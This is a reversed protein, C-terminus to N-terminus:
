APRVWTHDSSDPLSSGAVEEIIEQLLMTDWDDFTAGTTYESPAPPAVGDETRSGCAALIEAFCQPDHSCRNLLRSLLHRRAHRMESLDGGMLRLCEVTMGQQYPLPNLVRTPGMLCSCVYLSSWIFVVFNSIFIIIIYIYIYITTPAQRRSKLQRYKVAAPMRRLVHGSCAMTFPTGIAPICQRALFVYSKWSDESVTGSRM